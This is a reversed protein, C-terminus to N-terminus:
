KIKIIFTGDGGFDMFAFCFSSSFCNLSHFCALFSALDLALSCFLGGKMTPVAALDQTTCDYISFCLLMAMEALGLVLKEELFAMDHILGLGARGVELIRGLLDLSFLATGGTIRLSSEVEEEELAGIM